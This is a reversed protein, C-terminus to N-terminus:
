NITSIGSFRMDEPQTKWCCGQMLSRTRQRFIASMAMYLFPNIFNNIFFTIALFLMISMEPETEPEKSSFLVGTIYPVNASFLFVITVIALIKTTQITNRHSKSFSTSAEYRKTTRIKSLLFVGTRIYCVTMIISSLVAVFLMIAYEITTLYRAKMDYMCHGNQNNNVAFISVTGLGFCLLAIPIWMCKAQKISFAEKSHVVKFYRELATCACCVYSALAVSNVNFYHYKCLFNPFGLPWLKEFQVIYLPANFLSLIDCVAIYFIMWDTVSKEKIKRHVAVVLLNGPIGLIFSVSLFITTTHASWEYVNAYFPDLINVTSNNAM